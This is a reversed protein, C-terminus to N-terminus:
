TQLTVCVGGVRSRDLKIPMSTSNHPFAVHQSKLKCIVHMTLQSSILHRLQYNFIVRCHKSRLLNWIWFRKVRDAELYATSRVKTKGSIEELFNAIRRVEYQPRDCVDERNNSLAAVRLRCTRRSQFARHCSLFVASVRLGFTNQTVHPLHLILSPRIRVPIKLM